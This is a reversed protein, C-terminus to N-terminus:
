SADHALPPRERSPARVLLGRTGNRGHAQNTSDAPFMPWSSVFRGRDQARGWGMEAKLLLQAEVARIRIMLRDMEAMLAAEDQAAQAKQAPDTAYRQQDVADRVKMGLAHQQADLSCLEESLRVQDTTVLHWTAILGAGKPM